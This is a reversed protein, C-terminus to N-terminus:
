NWQERYATPKMKFVKTFTRTFYSPDNFGSQYAVESISLNLNTLLKKAHNLRYLRLLQIPSKGTIATVKRHLQSSSLHVKEALRAVSFDADHSNAEILVMVKKVFTDEITLDFNTTPEIKDPLNPKAYRQHLEKRTQLLNTVWLQLETDSFPKTLYADARRKLGDIRDKATAKATLLIIPIHSTREDAKLTECLEFGNKKPMMVDSIILDPISAKAMEIGEEGNKAFRISYQRLFSAIFYAVEQNDEVILILGEESNNFPVEQNLLSSSTTALSIPLQSNFFESSLFNNILNAQNTIPLHIEFESGVNLTSAVQIKGGMLEIFEKVLALGIGTGTNNGGVKVQHFRDFIFSLEEEAIGIGTDKIKFALIKQEGDINLMASARLDEVLLHITGSPPTFKIANSVLNSIIEYVRNADFDMVIPEKAIDIVLNIEKSIAFANFNDYAYRFLPLIDSQILQLELRGVQLKRLDLLQNVLHLSQRGNQEITKLKAITVEDLNVSEGVQKALGIILTLPTRFEHTINSYLRTKLADIEQLQQREQEIRQRKLQFKYGLFIITAVIIAGIFRAWWTQWWPPHVIVAITKGTKNWYGESDAGRVNFRYNGPPVNVYTAIKESGAKRWVEDYNELQYELYVRDPKKYDLCNIGFSFTNEKFSLNLESKEWIPLSSKKNNIQLETFQITPQSLYEARNMELPDFIHFGGDGGFAVKKTSTLLGVGFGFNDITVGDAEDYIAFSNNIPDFQIITQETSMWIKNIPDVVLARIEDTPLLSNEQKFETTEKTTPNLRRIGDVTTTYWLHGHQDETISPVFGYQRDHAVYHEFTKTPADFRDIFLPFELNNSKQGGGVWLQRQSDEFIYSVYNGGISFEDKKDQKFNTITEKQADVFFLGGGWTAIWFNHHLDEHITWITHEALITKENDLVITIKQEKTRADILRLGTETFEVLITGFQQVGRPIDVQEMKGVNYIGLDANQIFEHQLANFKMLNKGDLFGLWINDKEDEVLYSVRRNGAIPYFPFHNNNYIVKYTKGGGNGGTCVFIAHDETQLLDWIYNTALGKQFPANQELHIQKKSDPDYVNLGGYFAGIWLKNEQDEHIFGVQSYNPDVSKDLTLFPRSLQEADNTFLYPFRTFKGTKRDLQQLGDGMTGVWFNHKSDEFIAGVRNDSLSHRDNADHLYATMEQTQPNLQYLGGKTPDYEWPLGTGAWITGASDEYLVRVRGDFYQNKKYHEFANTMPNLQTIGSNTGIWIIGNKAEIITNIIGDILGNPNNKKADLRQFSYNAPDFKTIGKGLSGIWLIGKSDVLISEVYDSILSNTDLPNHQYRIFNRGDYRTLGNVTGFWVFGHQDQVMCNVTNGQLGGPLDIQEFQFFPTTTRKQALLNASRVLICCALLIALYYYNISNILLKRM